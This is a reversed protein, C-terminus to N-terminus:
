PNIKIIDTHINYVSFLKSLKSLEKRDKSIRLVVKDDSISMMIILEEAKEKEINLVRCLVQLLLEENYNKGKLFLVYVPVHYNEIILHSTDFIDWDINNMIENVKKTREERTEM